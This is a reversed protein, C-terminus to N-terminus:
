HLSILLHNGNFNEAAVTLSFNIWFFLLHSRFICARIFGSVLFIIQKELGISNCLLIM